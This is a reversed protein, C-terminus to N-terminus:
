EAMIRKTRLLWELGAAYSDAAPMNPQSMLEWTENNSDVIRDGASPTVVSGDIVYDAQKILWERDVFSTKVGMRTQTQIESGQGMWSAAVDATSDAGRHLAVTEGFLSTFSPVTADYVDDFVTM